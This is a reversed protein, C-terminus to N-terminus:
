SRAAADAKEKPTSITKDGIQFSYGQEFQTLSFPSLSLAVRFPEDTPAPTYGWEIYVFQSWLFATLSAVFLVAVISLVIRNGRKKTTKEKM